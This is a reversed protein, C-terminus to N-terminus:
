IRCAACTTRRPHGSEGMKRFASDAIRWGKNLKHNKSSDSLQESKSTM